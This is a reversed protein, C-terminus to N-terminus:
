RIRLGSHRTTVEQGALLGMPVSFVIAARLDRGYQFWDGTLLVLILETGAVALVGLLSISWWTPTNVVHRVLLRMLGYVLLLPLLTVGFQAPLLLDILTAGAIVWTLGATPGGLLAFPVSGLAILHPVGGFIPWVAVVNVQFLVTLVALFVSRVTSM